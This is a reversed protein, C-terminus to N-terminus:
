RPCSKDEEGIECALKQRLYMRAKEWKRQVTRESLKQLAAIEAFSCGCFFKLEVIEALEPEAELLEDLADGIQSLEKIDPAEQGFDTALPAFEYEGGRKLASRSRAHDIIIGRMVRAAYAVFRPQDAFAAGPRRSIDLYAEHLLTTVSLNSPAIRRALERRALAHLQGYLTSFLVDTGSGGSDPAIELPETPVVNGVIVAPSAASSMSLGM